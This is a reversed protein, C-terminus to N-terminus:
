YGFFNLKARIEDRKAPDSTLELARMLNKRGNDYEELHNLQLVGLNYFAEALPHIALCQEYAAKAEAYRTLSECVIAYNYYIEYKDVGLNFTIQYYRYALELKNQATAILAKMSYVLGNEQYTDLILDCIEDAKTFDQDHFYGMALNLLNPLNYPDYHRYKELIPVAEHIQGLDCLAKGWFFLTSKQYPNYHYVLKAEALVKSPDLDVQDAYTMRGYHVDAQYINKGLYLFAAFLVGFVISGPWCVGAPIRITQGTGSNNRGNTETNYDSYFCWICGLYVGLLYTPVMRYLPFGFGATVMFGIMGLIIGSIMGWDKTQSPQLVMKFIIRFFLLIGWGTIVVGILGLDAFLNLYDNHVQDANIMQAYTPDRIIANTYRQYLTKFNGLSVGIIPNDRILEVTNLWYIIRVWLSSISGPPRQRESTTLSLPKETVYDGITKSVVNYARGFEWHWGTSSWNAMVLFLILGIILVRLKGGFEPILESHRLRFFLGIAFLLSIQVAVALWAAKTYTFFLFIGMVLTAAAAWHIHRQRKSFLVISLGLPWIMVVYEAAMNKNSFTAGPVITQRVLDWGWWYQGLGIAAVMVGTILLAKILLQRVSTDHLLQITLFLGTAASVWQILVKIGDYRNIAWILSIGSWILFLIIPLDFASRRWILPHKGTGQYCWLGIFLLTGSTLYLIQPLHTQDWSPQRFFLPALPAVAIVIAYSRGLM